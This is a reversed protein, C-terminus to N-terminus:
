DIFRRLRRTVWDVGLRIALWWFGIFGIAAVWNAAIHGANNSESGAIGALIVGVLILVGSVIALRKTSVRRRRDAFRRLLAGFNWGIWQAIRDGIDLPVQPPVYTEQAPMPEPAPPLPTQTPSTQAFAPDFSEPQAQSWDEHTAAVSGVTAEMEVPAPNELDFLHADAGRLFLVPTGFEIDNGAAFISRRSQALAADVPYGQALSTYLRSAFTIAAGDTIEFQMGIVAPIGGEVLASAVGSFPDVRSARAGECANLVVLRLSREDRLMSSLEEGTVEHPRGQADELILIGDETREDYAGHGIYHIVHEEDPESIARDLEALTARPLWNVQVAGADILTALSEELKQREEDVDLEVVGDPGSVMGLIRLPLKVRRPERVRSLDLSRVVPTYISQSLFDPREYLFEWPIQMLEPTSTLYLTVRLGHDRSDAIRRAGLYVDRVDGQLLADHLRSGFEKAQEMASSRYGRAKRRPVGARLVFIELEEPTFPNAFTGEAASGDPGQAVVRYDGDSGDLIRLQLEDYDPVADAM